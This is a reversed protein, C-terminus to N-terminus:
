GAPPQDELLAELLAVLPPLDDRLTDWVIRRDIGFYRHVVVNRMDRMVQWPIEPHADAEDPDIHAAAEGIVTFNRVVADVTKRDQCFSEFDMGATYEQIAAIADLIDRLRLRWDRPPV